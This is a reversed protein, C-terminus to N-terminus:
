VLPLSAIFSSLQHGSVALVSISSLRVFSGQYPWTPANTTSATAPM